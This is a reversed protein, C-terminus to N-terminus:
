FKNLLKNQMEKSRGVRASTSPELGFDDRHLEGDKRLRDIYIQQKNFVCLDVDQNRNVTRKRQAKAGSRRGSETNHKNSRTVVPM